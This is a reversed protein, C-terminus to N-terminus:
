TEDWPHFSYRNKLMKKFAQVSPNKEGSPTKVKEVLGEEVLKEIVWWWPRDEKRTRKKKKEKIESQERANRLMEDTVVIRLSEDLDEGLSDSMRGDVKDLDDKEKYGRLELVRILFDMDIPRKMGTEIGVIKTKRLIKRADPRRGGSRLMRIWEIFHDKAWSPLDPHFDAFGPSIEYEGNLLLRGGLTPVDLFFKGPHRSEAPRGKMLGSALAKASLDDIRETRKQIEYLEPVQIGTDPTGLSLTKLNEKEAKVQELLDLQRPTLPPFDPSANKM